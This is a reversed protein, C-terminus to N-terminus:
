WAKLHDFKFCGFCQKVPEIFPRVRLRITSGYTGIVRPLENGKYTFIIQDTFRTKNEKTSPDVYRKRMREIQILDKKCVM